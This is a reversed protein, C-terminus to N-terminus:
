GDGVLHHMRSSFSWDQSNMWKLIDPVSDGNCTSGDDFVVVVSKPLIKGGVLWGEPTKETAVRLHTINTYEYKM